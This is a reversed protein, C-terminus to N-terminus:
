DIEPHGDENIWYSNGDDEEFQQIMELVRIVADWDKDDYAQQLEEIVLEVQSPTMIM